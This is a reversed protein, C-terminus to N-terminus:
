NIATSFYAFGDISNPYYFQIEINHQLVLNNDAKVNVNLENSTDGVHNAQGLTSLAGSWLLKYDYNLVGGATKRHDYINVVMAGGALNSITVNHTSGRSVTKSQAVYTTAAEPHFFVDTASAKTNVASIGVVIGLILALNIFLKKM